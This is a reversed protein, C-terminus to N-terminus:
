RVCGRGCQCRVRQRRPGLPLELSSGPLTLRGDNEIDEFALDGYCSHRTTTCNLRLTTYGQDESRPGFTAWDAYTFCSLVTLYPVETAHWRSQLGNFVPQWRILLDAGRRLAGHQVITPGYRSKRFSPPGGGPRV